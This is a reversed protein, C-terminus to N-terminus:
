DFYNSWFLSQGMTLPGVDRYSSLGIFMQVYEYAHIHNIYYRTFSTLFWVQISHKLNGAM